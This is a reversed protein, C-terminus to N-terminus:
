WIKDPSEAMRERRDCRNIWQDYLDSDKVCDGFYNPFEKKAGCHLCNGKSVRGDPLDIMWHHKCEVASAPDERQSATARTNM